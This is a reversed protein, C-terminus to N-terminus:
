SLSREFSRITRGVWLPTDVLKLFSQFIIGCGLLCRIIQAKPTVDVEILKPRLLPTFSFVYSNSLHMNYDCDDIWARRKSITRSKVGGTRQIKKEAQDIYAQRGKTKVLWYRPGLRQPYM